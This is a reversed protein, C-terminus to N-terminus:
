FKDNFILCGVLITIGLVAEWGGGGTKGARAELGRLGLSKCVFLVGCHVSRLVEREEKLRM